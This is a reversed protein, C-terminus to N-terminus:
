PISILPQRLNYSTLSDHYTDYRKYPTPLWMAMDPMLYVVHILMALPLSLQHISLPLRYLSGRQRALGSSYHMYKLSDFAM